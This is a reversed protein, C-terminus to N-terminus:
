TVFHEDSKGCGCVVVSAGWIDISRKYVFTLSYALKCFPVPLYHPGVVSQLSSTREYKLLFLEMFM